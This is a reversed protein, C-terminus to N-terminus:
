TNGGTFTAFVDVQRRSRRCLEWHTKLGQGSSAMPSDWWLITPRRSVNGSIRLKDRCTSWDGSLSAVWAQFLGTPRVCLFTQNLVALANKLSAEENRTGRSRPSVCLCICRVLCRM